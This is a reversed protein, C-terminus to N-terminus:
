GKLARIREELVPVIDFLDGVIGVDAVSFIPARPDKNIAVLFPDGKIGGMHQFSGSIGVAVYLKPKVSKGSTGVQRSKPMWQKDVVPRSCAVEAGLADALSRILGLSEEDQIGRGVAVLRDAQSIDIDSAEGTVTRVNRRRLSLTDPVAEMIVQGHLEPSTGATCAGPRVTVIYGNASVSASVRAHIKGGYTPRVASLIGDAWTASLCDTLLPRRLRVALGPIFDMANNTHAALLVDPSEREICPALVAALLEGDPVKLREDDWVYIGNFWGAAEGVLAPTEWGPLLGTVSGEDGVLSRALVALEMASDDVVGGDHEIIVFAKQM